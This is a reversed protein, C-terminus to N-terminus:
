GEEVEGNTAESLFAALRLTELPAAQAEGNISAELAEFRQAQTASTWWRALWELEARVHLQEGDTAGAFQYDLRVRPM